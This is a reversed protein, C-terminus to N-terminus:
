QAFLNMMRLVSPLGDYLLNGGSKLAKAERAYLTKKLRDVHANLLVIQVRQITLEDLQKWEHEQVKSLAVQM